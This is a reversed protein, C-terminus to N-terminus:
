TRNALTWKDPTFFPLVAPIVNFVARFATSSLATLVLSVQHYRPDDAGITPHYKRWYKMFNKLRKEEISAHNQLSQFTYVSAVFM